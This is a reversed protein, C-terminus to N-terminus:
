KGLVETLCKMDCCLLFQINVYDACESETSLSLKPQKVIEAIFEIVSSQLQSKIHLNTEPNTDGDPPRFLSILYSNKHSKAASTSKKVDDYKIIDMLFCEVQMRSGKTAQGADLSLKIQIESGSPINEVKVAYHIM